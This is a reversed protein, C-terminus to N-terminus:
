GSSASEPIDGNNHPQEARAATDSIQQLVDDVIETVLQVHRARNNNQGSLVQAPPTSRPTTSLPPPETQVPPPSPPGPTPPTSLPDHIDDMNFLHQLNDLGIATDSLLCLPDPFPREGYSIFEQVPTTSPSENDSSM